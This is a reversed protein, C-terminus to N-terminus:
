GEWKFIGETHTVIPITEIVAKISRIVSEFSYEQPDETLEIEGQITKIINTLQEIKLKQCLILSKIQKSEEYSAAWEVDKYINKIDQM